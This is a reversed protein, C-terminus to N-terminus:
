QDAAARDIFLSGSTVVKEGAALGSLVEVMGDEVRGARIQRLSLNRGGGAVWVRATDGEFIVAEEPVSVNQAPQGGLLRVEAFMEPKLRGGPNDVTSRIAIRHTAPDVTPAIFDLRGRFVEGPLANTRVEITQGLKAKAADAERLNAVLWVTSLDSVIFEATAGGNSVSAVNQGVGVTRQLVVGAIPAAVIAEGGSPAGSGPREFGGIEAESAGLMRLRDHASALAAKATALDAQSQQLDKLAAGSDAYLTRQREEGAQALRVQASAAALDNRAQVFELAQVAFLPQGRRVGDGAKVMVQTVRGSFPSFVSTTHDDNAAIKGDTSAEIRFARAEAAAFKFTSWQEDTTVFAGHPPAPAPPPPKPAFLAAVRPVGFLLAAALVAAVILITWQTRRSMAPLSRPEADPAVDNM